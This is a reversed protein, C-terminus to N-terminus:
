PKSRDPAAAHAREGQVSPPMQHEDRSYGSQVCRGIQAAHITHHPRRCTCNPVTIRSLPQTLVSLSPLVVASISPIENSLAFRVLCGLEWWAPAPTSGSGSLGPALVRHPADASARSPPEDLEPWADVHQLSPLRFHGGRYHTRPYPARRVSLAAFSQSQAHASSAAMGRM